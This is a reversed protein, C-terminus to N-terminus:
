EIPSSVEAGRAPVLAHTVQGKPGSCQRALDLVERHVEAYALAFFHAASEPQVTDLAHLLRLAANQAVDEAEYSAQVCPFKALLREAVRMMRQRAIAVLENLAGAEGARTRDLLLELRPEGRPEDEMASQG